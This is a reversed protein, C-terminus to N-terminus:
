FRDYVGIKVNFLFCLWTLRNLCHIGIKIKNMVKVIKNVWAKGLLLALFAQQRESADGGPQTKRPLLARSRWPPAHIEYVM